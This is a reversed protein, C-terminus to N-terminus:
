NGFIVMEPDVHVGDATIEIHLHAGTSSGTSGVYGIVDGQKVIDCKHIGDPKLLSAYKTVLNNASEVVIYNGFETDFAADIVTGDAIAYVNSGEPAAFDTGNHNRVENTVPHVRSGFKQSVVNSDTPWVFTGKVSKIYKFSQKIFEFDTCMQLYEAAFFKDDEDAGKWIPYQIDSPITWLYLADAEYLVSHPIIDYDQAKGSQEKMISFLTGTGEGYKDFIDKHVFTVSNENEFTHYAGKWRVPLYISFGLDKNTYPVLSLITSQESEFRMVSLTNASNVTDLRHGYVGNQDVSSITSVIDFMINNRDINDFIKIDKALQKIPYNTQIGDKIIQIINGTNVQNNPLLKQSIFEKAVESLIMMRSFDGDAYGTGDNNQRYRLINCLQEGSLVQKGQKLNINLNQHPDSYSMDQPVDFVLGGSEDVIKQITGLNVKAYYTVPIDLAKRIADVVMQDGNPHHLMDSAKMSNDLLTDRPINLGTISQGDTSIVMIADARNTNDVGLVVINFKNDTRKDALVNVSVADSVFGGMIGSACIACVIIVMAAILSVIISKKGFKKSNKISLFRKKLNNKSDSMATTLSPNSSGSSALDLITSVYSKQEDHNMNRVVRMDCSIECDSNIQKCIFYIAPNFWHVCKVIMAFWKYLIDNRNLHTAEHALINHLQEDTFNSDPLLLTKKFLGAIMPSSAISCMRVTVNKRTYQVIESCEIIYSNNKCSLIFIIYSIVKFAFIAIAIALWVYPLIQSIGKFNFTNINHQPQWEVADANTNDNPEIPMQPQFEVAQGETITDATQTIVKSEFSPVNLRAPAIMVILVALWMYYHWCPSFYKKTVPQLMALVAAFVTGMLSTAVIALFIRLM